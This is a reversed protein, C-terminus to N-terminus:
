IPKSILIKINSLSQWVLRGRTSADSSRWLLSHLVLLCRFPLYKRIRKSNKVWQWSSVCIREKASITLNCIFLSAFFPYSLSTSGRSYHFVKLAHFLQFVPGIPISRASSSIVKGRMWSQVRYIIATCGILGDRNLVFGSWVVCFNSWFGSRNSFVFLWQSLGSLSGNIRSFAGSFLVASKEDLCISVAIKSCLGLVM